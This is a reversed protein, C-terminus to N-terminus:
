EHMCIRGAFKIGHLGAEEKKGWATASGNPYTASEVFPKGCWEILVKQFSELSRLSGTSRASGISKHITGSLAPVHRIQIGPLISTVAVM